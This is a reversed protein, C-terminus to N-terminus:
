CRGDNRGATGMPPPLETPLDLMLHENVDVFRAVNGAREIYRSMWYVSEAVRSLM